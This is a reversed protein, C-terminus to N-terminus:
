FLLAPEQTLNKHQGESAMYRSDGNKKLPHLELYIMDLYLSTMGKIKFWLECFASFMSVMVKELIESNGLGDLPLSPVQVAPVCPM